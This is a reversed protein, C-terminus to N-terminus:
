KNKKSNMQAEWQQLLSLLVKKSITINEGYPNIVFGKADSPTRILINGFDEMTMILAHNHTGDDNWKGYEDMDTFAMYYKDGENSRLAEFKIRTSPGDKEVVTQTIIPSLTRSEMLAAAFAGRTKENDNRQMQRMAEILKPNKVESNSKNAM